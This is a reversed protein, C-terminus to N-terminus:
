KIPLCMIYQGMIPVFNPCIIEGKYFNMKKEKYNSAISKSLTFINGRWNKNLPKLIWQQNKGSESLISSIRIRTHPNSAHPFFFRGKM